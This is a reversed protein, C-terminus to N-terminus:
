ALQADTFNVSFARCWIRVQDFDALDVNTPIEYVQNGSVGKLKGLDVADTSGTSDVLEVRLDPGSDTSFDELTLVSGGAALKVISATGAGAHAQKRFTGSSVLTNGAPKAASKEMADGSKGETVSSDKKEMVAGDKKEMVDGGAAPAKASVTPLAENVTKDSALALGQVAAPIALVTVLFAIGIPIRLDRRSSTFRWLVAGVMGFFLLSAGMAAERTDTLWASIAFFGVALVGVVIAMLLAKEGTNTSTSQNM